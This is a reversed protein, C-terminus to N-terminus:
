RLWQVDPQASVGTNVQRFLHGSAGIAADSREEAEETLAAGDGIISWVRWPSDPLGTVLTWDHITEEKEKELDM